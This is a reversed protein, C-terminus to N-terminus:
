CLCSGTSSSFGLIRASRAIAGNLPMSPAACPRYLRASVIAKSARGSQDSSLLTRPLLLVIAPPKTSPRECNRTGKKGSFAAIFSPLTPLVKALNPVFRESMTRSMVAPEITSKAANSPCSSRRELRMFREGRSLFWTVSYRAALSSSASSSPRILFM